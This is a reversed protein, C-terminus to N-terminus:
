TCVKLRGICNSFFIASRIKDCFYNCSQAFAGLGQKKGKGMEAGLSVNSRLVMKKFRLRLADRESNTGNNGYRECM